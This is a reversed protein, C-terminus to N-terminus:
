LAGILSSSIERLLQALLSVHFLHEFPLTPPFIPPVVVQDESVFGAWYLGGFYQITRIILSGVFFYVLNRSVVLYADSGREGKLM